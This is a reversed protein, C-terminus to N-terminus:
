LLEIQDQLRQILLSRIRRNLESKFNQYIKYEELTLNALVLGIYNASLEKDKKLHLNIYELKEAESLVRFTGKRKEIYDQFLCIVMENQFKLIPRLCNNQFRECESTQQDISLSPIQPRLELLKEDRM